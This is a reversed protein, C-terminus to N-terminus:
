YQADHSRIAQSYSNPDLDQVTKMFSYYDDLYAPQKRVWIPRSIPENPQEIVELPGQCPIRYGIDEEDSGESAQVVKGKSIEYLEVCQPEVKPNVTPDELFFM